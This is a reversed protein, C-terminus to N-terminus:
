VEAQWIIARLCKAAGHAFQLRFYQVPWSMVEALKPKAQEAKEQARPDQKPMPMGAERAL